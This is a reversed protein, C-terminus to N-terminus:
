MSMCMGKFTPQLTNYMYVPMTRGGVTMSHKYHCQVSQQLVDGEGNRYVLRAASRSVTKEAFFKLQNAWTKGNHVHFLRFDKGILESEALSLRLKCIPKKAFEGLFSDFSKAGYLEVYIEKDDYVMHDNILVKQSDIFFADSVAVGDPHEPM